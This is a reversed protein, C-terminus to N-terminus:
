WIRSRRVRAPPAPELRGVEALHGTLSERAHLLNLYGRKVATQAELESGRGRSAASAQCGFHIMEVARAAWELDEGLADRLRAAHAPARIALAETRADALTETGSTLEDLIEEPPILHRRAADTRAVIQDLLPDVRGAVAKADFRFRTIERSRALAQGAARGFYWLIYLLLGALLLPLVIAGWNM